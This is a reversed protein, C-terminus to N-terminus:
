RVLLVVRLGAISGGEIDLGAEAAGTNPRGDRNLCAVAGLTAPVARDGAVLVVEAALGVVAKPRETRPSGGFTM